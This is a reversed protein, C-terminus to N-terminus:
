RKGENRKRNRLWIYIAIFLLPLVLFTVITTTNDFSIPENDSPHPVDQPTQALVQGSIIAFSCLVFLSFLCTYFAQLIIKM